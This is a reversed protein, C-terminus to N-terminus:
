VMMICFFTGRYILIINPGSKYGWHFGDSLDVTLTETIGDGDADEAFYVAGELTKSTVSISYRTKNGEDHAFIDEPIPKRSILMGSEKRNM